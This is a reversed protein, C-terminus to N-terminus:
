AGGEGHLDDSKFLSNCSITSLANASDRAVKCRRNGLIRARDSTDSHVLVPGGLGIDRAVKPGYVSPIVLSHARIPPCLTV